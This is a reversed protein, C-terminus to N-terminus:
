AGNEDKHPEPKGVSLALVAPALSVAMVSGCVRRGAVVVMLVWGAGTRAVIIVVIVAIVVSVFIPFAVVGNVIVAAVGMEEVAPGPM